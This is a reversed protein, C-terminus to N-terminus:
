ANEAITFGTAELLGDRTEFKDSERLKWYKLNVLGTPTAAILHWRHTAGPQDEVLLMHRTQVPQLWHGIAVPESTEWLEADVPLGTSEPPCHRLLRATIAPQDTM